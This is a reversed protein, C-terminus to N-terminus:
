NVKVASDLTMNSGADLTSAPATVSSDSGGGDGGGCATLVSLAVISLPLSLKNM